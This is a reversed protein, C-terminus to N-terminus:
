RRTTSGRSTSTTNSAGGTGRTSPIRSGPPPIRSQPRPQSSSSSYSSSASVGRAGRASGRTSGRASASLVRGRGRVSGRVNGNAGMAARLQADKESEVRNRETEAEEAQRRRSEQAEAERQIRQNERQRHEQVRMDDTAGKWHENLMLNRTHEQQGLIRTYEDLLTSTQEVREALRHNHTQAICLADVSKQLPERFKRLAKLEAQLAQVRQAPHAPHQPEDDHEPNDVNLDVDEEEERRALDNLSLAHQTDDAFTFSQQQIDEM